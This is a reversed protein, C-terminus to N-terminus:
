LSGQRIWDGGVSTMRLVERVRGNVDPVSALKSTSERWLYFSHM